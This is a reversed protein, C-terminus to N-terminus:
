FYGWRATVRLGITVVTVDGGFSALRAELGYSRARSQLWDIGGGVVVAPDVTRALPGGGTTLVGIGVFAYPVYKLVDFRLAAGADVLVASATQSQMKKEDAGGYFLGGVVEARLAFDTGVHREYSAAFSGGITPALAEPEMDDMVEGPASFTAWGLGVSLAQESEAWAPGSGPAAAGFAALAGLAATRVIRGIRSPRM